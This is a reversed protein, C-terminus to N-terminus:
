PVSDKSIDVAREETYDGKKVFPIKVMKNGCNFTLVHHSM